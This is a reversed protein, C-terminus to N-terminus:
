NLIVQKMRYDDNPVDVIVVHDFKGDDIAFKWAPSIGPPNSVPTDFHNRFSKSNLNNRIPWLTRHLICTNDFM